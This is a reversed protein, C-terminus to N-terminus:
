AQAKMESPCSSGFTHAFMENLAVWGIKENEVYQCTKREILKQIRPFRM